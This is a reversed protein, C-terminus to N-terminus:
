PIVLATNSIIQDRSLSFNQKYSGPKITHTVSDVAYFGDYSIGAGRVGVLMGARLIGKYRTVDLAGTAKVSPPNNDSSIMDGMVRKAAEGTNKKSISDAYGFKPIPQPSRLGLPPKLLNFSPLPIPITVKKTIEDFITYTKIKKALGDITFNLSDVNTHADMNVSLARQPIPINVEPGFYAINQLPLPGPIIQFIYGNERALSKLFQLPTQKTVSDWRDTPSRVSSVPPAIVIPTVGLFSFPSLISYVKAADPMAPLPVTVEAMDMLVSIDEGTLTLTSHGAENAASTQHNTIFGDILVHPIGNLVAFIVVRTTTADLLGAALLDMILASTKSIALDIQFASRERSNTVQIDTIANIIFAPAPIPIGPGILITLQLGKVM